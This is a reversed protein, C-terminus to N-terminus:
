TSSIDLRLLDPTIAARFSESITNLDVLDVRYPLDSFEFQTRLKTMVADSVPQGANDLALDIDLFPKERGTARSGFLYVLCGTPLVERLVAAVKAFVDASLAPKNAMVSQWVTM